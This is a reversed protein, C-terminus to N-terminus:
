RCQVGCRINGPRPLHKLLQLLVRDPLRCGLHLKNSGCVSRPQLCKGLFLESDTTCTPPCSPSTGNCLYPSCTPTGTGTVNTCTGNATAGLAQSCVDCAGSCASNCCYGDVCGGTSGCVRCSGNGTHCDAGGQTLDCTAGQAKQAACHGATNCYYGTSCGADSTCTSPCPVNAGDCVYNGCLGATGAPALSCTGQYGSVNCLQCPGACTATSCCTSNVCYGSTCEQGLTCTSANDGPFTEGYTTGASLNGNVVLVHNNPQAVMNPLSRGINLSQGAVWNSNIYYYVSQSDNDGGLLIPTGDIPLPAAVSRQDASPLPSAGSWQKGVPDYIEATATLVTDYSDTAGRAVLVRGDSLTSTAHYQRPQVLQEVDGWTGMSPSFVESTALSATTSGRGGIVLLKAEGGAMIIQASHGEWRSNTMSGVTTWSTGDFYETSVGGAWNKGGGVALAGGTPGTVLPFHYRAQNMSPVANDASWTGTAPDYLWCKSSMSQYTGDPSGGCLLVGPIPGATVGTASAYCLPIDINSTGSWTRSAPDYLSSWKICAGSTTMGTAVLVWGIFEGSPDEFATSTKLQDITAQTESWVPDFVAPFQLNDSPWSFTVHCTTTKPPTTSRGWPGAPNTDYACGTVGLSAETRHGGSDLVHARAVRLRPVGKQDLFELVDSVLRVGAVAAGLTIQYEIASPSSADLMVFDQLGSSSINFLADRGGRGAPYVWYGQAAVGASAASGSVPVVEIGVKSTTEEFGFSGAANQGLHMAVHQHAAVSTSLSPVVQGNRPAAFATAQSANLPEGARAVIARIRDAIASPGSASGAAAGGDSSTLARGSSEDPLRHSRCGSLGCASLLLAAVVGLQKM